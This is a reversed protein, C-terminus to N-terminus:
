EGTEAGKRPVGWGCVCVERVAGLRWSKKSDVRVYEIGLIEASHPFSASLVLLVGLLRRIGNRM